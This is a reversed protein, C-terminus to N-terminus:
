TKTIESRELHKRIIWSEWLTYINFLFGKMKKKPFFIDLELLKKLKKEFDLQSIISKLAEDVRKQNNIIKKRMYSFPRRDPNKAIYSHSSTLFEAKKIYLEEAYNIDALYQEISCEKFGYWPGFGDVDPKPQDFGLCSIHLIKENPLLLGVHAKSHGSFPITEIIFNEFKLSDRPEFPNVNDCKHFGNLEGFKEIDSYDLAENFGFGEFFNHLDLLYTAEPNPAHVLAGIKEWVYVHSSHDMHGHTCVYNSVPGYINNLEKVYKPEINADLVITKSNRGSKPLIILGDSTSFNGKATLQHVLLVDNTVIKVELNDIQPIKM